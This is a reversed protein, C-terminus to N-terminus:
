DEGEENFNRSNLYYIYGSLDKVGARVHKYIDEAVRERDKSRMHLFKIKVSDLLRKSEENSREELNTFIWKNLNQKEQIREKM